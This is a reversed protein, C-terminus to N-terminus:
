ESVPQWGYTIYRHAFTGDDFLDFVGYGEDCEAHNGKWWAGCVAGDCIYTVGNYEARDV